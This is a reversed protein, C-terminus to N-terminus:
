SFKKYLYIIYKIIIIDINISYDISPGAFHLETSITSIRSRPMALWAFGAEPEIFVAAYQSEPVDHHEPM